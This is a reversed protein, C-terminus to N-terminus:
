PAGQHQATIARRLRAMWAAQAALDDDAPAFPARRSSTPDFPGATVEHFLVMESEFVQAHWRDGPIQLSITRGSSVDGMPLVQELDGADSFFFVTALGAIVMFSEDRCRHAHPPVYVERGHAIIMQHIRDTPDQHLCIRCRRRPNAAARRALADLEACAIARPEGRLYIVEPSLPHFRPPELGSM